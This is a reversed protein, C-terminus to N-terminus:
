RVPAVEVYLDNYGDDDFDYDSKATFLLSHKGERVILADPGNDTKNAVPINPDEIVMTVKPRNSLKYRITSWLGDKGDGIEVREVKTAFSSEFDVDILQFNNEGNTYVFKITTIIFEIENKLYNEKQTRDYNELGVWIMPLGIVLILAIIILKLPIGEVANDNSAPRHM